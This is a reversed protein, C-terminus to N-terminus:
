APVYSSTSKAQTITMSMPVPHPMAVPRCIDRLISRLDMIYMSFSSNSYVYIYLVHMCLSICVYIYIYSCVHIYM